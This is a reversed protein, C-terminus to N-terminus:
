KKRTGDNLKIIDGTNATIPLSTDEEHFIENDSTNMKQIKILHNHNNDCSTTTNTYSTSIFPLIRESLSLLDKDDFDQDM